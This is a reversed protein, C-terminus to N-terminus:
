GRRRVNFRDVKKITGGFNRGVGRVLALEGDYLALNENVELALLLAMTNLQRSGAKKPELSSGGSLRQLALLRIQVPIAPDFLRSTNM